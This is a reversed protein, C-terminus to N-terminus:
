KGTTPKCARTMRKKGFQDNRTEIDTLGLGALLTELENAYHPNIEFYLRGDPRLAEVAYSAIARYFLLADDDPVFLAEHPEHEVVNTAMAAMENRCIYPPNSVIVDWLGHDAPPRLADQRVLSVHVNTRKANAAAMALAADSLDWATLRAEPLGAALTCAICGSGTGIDLMDGGRQESIIWQCLEYTEPRPILVGPGVRFLRGGFEALGLVYQVPEGAELRQRMALLEDHPLDDVRQCLIDTMTLGYGLEMVMRGIAKAENEDYRGTLPQWFDRYTM